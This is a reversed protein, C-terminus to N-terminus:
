LQETKTARLALRSTMDSVVVDLLPVELRVDLLVDELLVEAEVEVLVVPPACCVPSGWLEPIEDPAAAPMPIPDAAAPAIM